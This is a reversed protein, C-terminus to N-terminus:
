FQLRLAQSSALRTPAVTVWVRPAPRRGNNEPGSTVGQGVPCSASELPPRIYEFDGCVAQRLLVAVRMACVCRPAAPVLPFEPAVLVGRCPCGDVAVCQWVCVCLQIREWPWLGGRDSVSAVVCTCVPVCLRCM